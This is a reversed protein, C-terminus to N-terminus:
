PLFQDAGVDCVPAPRPQGDYDFDSAGGATRNGRGRCPSTMTLHTGDPAFVPALRFNSAGPVM